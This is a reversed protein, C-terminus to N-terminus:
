YVDGVRSKILSCPMHKQMPLAHTFYKRQQEGRHQKQAEKYETWM